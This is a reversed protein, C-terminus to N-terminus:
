ARQTHSHYCCTKRFLFASQEMTKWQTPLIKADNLFSDLSNERHIIRKNCHKRQQYIQKPASTQSIHNSKQFLQVNLLSFLKLNIRGCPLMQFLEMKLIRKRYRFQNEVLSVSNHQYNSRCMELLKRVQKLKLFDCTMKILM